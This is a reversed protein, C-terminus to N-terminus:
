SILSAFEEFDIGGNWKGLASAIMGGKNLQNLLPADGWGFLLYDRKVRVLIFCHGGCIGRAGLWAVQDRSLGVKVPTKYTKPWEYLAKLEIWGNVKDIGYSVDPIGLQFKDEHRTAHWKGRMGKNLYQWLSAEAM